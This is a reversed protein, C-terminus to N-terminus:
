FEGGGRTAIHARTTRRVALLSGSVHATPNGEVAIIITAPGPVQAGGAHFEGSAAMRGYTAADGNFLLLGSGDPTNLYVSLAAGNATSRMGYSLLDMTTGPAVQITTSGTGGGDTDFAFPIRVREDETDPKDGMAEVLQTLLGCIHNAYDWASWGNEAKLNGMVGM